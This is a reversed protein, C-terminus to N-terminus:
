KVLELGYETKVYQRSMDKQSRTQKFKYRHGCSTLKRNKKDTGIVFMNEKCIPCPKISMKKVEDSMEIEM